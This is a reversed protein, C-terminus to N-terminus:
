LFIIEKITEQNLKENIRKILDSKYYVLENRWVDSKVKVFIIGDKVRLPETVLAIKEGVVDPWIQIAECRKLITQINTNNFYQQLINGLKKM